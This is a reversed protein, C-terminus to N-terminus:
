EESLALLQVKTRDFTGHIENLLQNSSSINGDKAGDELQSCLDAIQIAGLNASSGKIQHAKSIISELDKENVAKELAGLQECTQEIYMSIIEKFDDDQGNGRLQDIQATALLPNKINNDASEPNIGLSRNLATQLEKLQVPKSIFDDMGAELCAARDDEQTNATM